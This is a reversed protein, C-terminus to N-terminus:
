WLVWSAIHFMAEQVADYVFSADGDETAVTRATEDHSDSDDDSKTAPPPPPPTGGGTTMTGDAAATTALLCSLALAVLLAKLKKM